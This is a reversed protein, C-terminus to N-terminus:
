GRAGSLSRVFSLRQAALLINNLNADGPDARLGTFGTVVDEDALSADLMKTQAPSLISVVSDLV